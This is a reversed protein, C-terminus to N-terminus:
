CGNMIFVRSFTPISPIYRLMIFAMYSLVVALTVSLPLISFANGRLYPILCSHKNEDSKTLMTNYTRAVATMCSFSIFPMWIPFSSTFSDSNASSMIHNISFGLSEVLFSNSSFFSNLLTAPYLILICFGTASRSVLLSNSLYILFVIGNVVADFLIFYTPVFRVLLHFVQVRFVM